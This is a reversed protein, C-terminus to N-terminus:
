LAHISKGHVAAECAEMTGEAFTPHSHITAAVDEALAGLEIALALEAILESAGHGAIGAGLILGSPEDFVIKCLGPAPMQNLTMARGLASFPFTAVKPEYGEEKAQEASLGVTAIEPDTFIAAPLSRYDLASPMGAIVEAAVVGEKTAKHALYPAGTVDGIAYIGPVNTRCQTDIPIHGRKDTAVGAAELGLDKSNPRFGVASLIKDVEIVKPDRGQPDTITVHLAGAKEEFSTVKSRTLVKVKLKKLRRKVWKVLDKDVGLLVDDMFEVVTVESGLKRLATGLELGIVGGGVVLLRRPLSRMALAGRAGVVHKGDAELGPLEFPKAGTAIITNKPTFRTVTGDAATVEVSGPGTFRAHGYVVRAGNAKLLAGVGGTLRKVITDKWDVLKPMDVSAGRFTIGMSSAHQAHDFTDAAHIFAKSPICGWNLCVGGLAEREVVVTDLGLQGCRIGAPYGGPGAGIILVDPSHTDTM